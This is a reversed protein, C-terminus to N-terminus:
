DPFDRRYRALLAEVDNPMWYLKAQFKKRERARLGGVHPDSHLCVYVGEFLEHTSDSVTALLYKGDASFCGILGNVPRTGCIPRPNVNSLNIGAPVYVQGGRYLAAETRETRDLTVLGGAGFIFSRKLYSQQDGGTFAAVRICAPQFWELDFPQDTLNHLEYDFSVGDPGSRIEHRMEVNTLVLTRFQLLHGTQSILETRHPIKTEGWSRHTANSRCFAELYLVELVGGPLGDGRIKLANNTWSLSLDGAARVSGGAMLLLLVLWRM